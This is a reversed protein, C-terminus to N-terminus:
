RWFFLYPVIKNWEPRMVLLTINYIITASSVLLYILSRDKNKRYKITNSISFISFIWFYQEMRDLISARTALIAICLSAIMFNMYIDVVTVQKTKNSIARDNVQNSYGTFVALLIFAAKILIDIYNALNDTSFESSGLYHSYYEPLIGLVIKLLPSFLLTVVCTVGIM